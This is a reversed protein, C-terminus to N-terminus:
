KSQLSEKRIETSPTMRDPVIASASIFSDFDAEEIRYNRGVQIAKIKGKKVLNRVTNRTVNLKKAVDIIKLMGM